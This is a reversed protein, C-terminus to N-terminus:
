YLATLYSFNYTATTMIRLIPKHQVAFNLSLLHVKEIYHKIQLFTTLLMM